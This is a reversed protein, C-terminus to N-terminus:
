ADQSWPFRVLVGKYLVVDPTSLPTKFTQVVSAVLVTAAPNVEALVSKIQRISSGTDIADDVLWIVSAQRVKRLTEEPVQVSRAGIPQEPRFMFERANHELVRLFNNLFRPLLRLVGQIGMRKKVKSGGRSASLFAHEHGHAGLENMKRVIHGGGSEIGILLGPKGTQEITELLAMCARDFDRGLCSIVKFTV